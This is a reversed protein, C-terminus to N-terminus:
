RLGQLRLLHLALALPIPHALVSHTKRSPPLLFRVFQGPEYYYTVVQDTVQGNQHDGIPIVVQLPDQGKKIGKLSARCTKTANKFVTNVEKLCAHRERAMAKCAARCKPKVERQVSTPENAYPTLCNRLCSKTQAKGMTAFLWVTALATTVPPLLRM